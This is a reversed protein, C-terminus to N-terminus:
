RVDTQFIEGLRPMEPLEQVKKKPCHEGQSIPSPMSAVSSM